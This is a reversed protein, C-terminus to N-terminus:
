KGYIQEHYDRVIDYEGDTAVVFPKLSGHELLARGRESQPWSLITRLLIEREKPPVRQHVVFLSHPIVFTESLVHLEVKWKNKFFRVPYQASGCTDISGIVLQQLCSDHTRFHHINVDRDPRVGARALALKVLHSIAATDPPLGIKKGRLQQISKLPSDPRVMFQAALPEGRRAVPLYGYEDHAVVYDFPQVIAIDYTRQRLEGTFQEFNSKSRFVVERGLARGFDQAIPAYIKELQGLSLHPFAGFVYPQAAGQEAQATGLAAV